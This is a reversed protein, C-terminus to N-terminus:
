RQFGNTIHGDLLNVVRKNMTTTYSSDATAFVVTTGMRNLAGLLHLMDWVTDGDAREDLGDVIVVAPSRWITKAMLVRCRESATLDRPYRDESGPMGVLALAKEIRHRDFLRNKLYELRHESALNKFVTEMPRLDDAGSLFGLCSRLDGRESESLAWLNAAGLWVKGHDPELEGAILEMLTSKGSGRVGTIFVFEGHRITLNVQLTSSVGRRSNKYIKSVQELRITPM